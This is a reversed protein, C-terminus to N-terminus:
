QAAQDFKIRKDLKSELRAIRDQLRAVDSRSPINFQTKLKSIGMEARTKLERRGADVFTGVTFLVQGVRDTNWGMRGLFGNLHQKNEHKSHASKKM